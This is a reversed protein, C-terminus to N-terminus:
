IHILNGEKVRAHPSSQAVKKQKEISKDALQVVADEIDSGSRWVELVCGQPIRSRASELRRRWAEVKKNPSTVLSPQEMTKEAPSTFLSKTSSYASHARRYMVPRPTKPQALGHTTSTKDVTEGAPTVTVESAPGAGVENISKAKRPPLPPVYSSEVPETNAHVPKREGAVKDRPPLLPPIPPPPNELMKKEAARANAETPDFGIDGPDLMNNVDSASDVNINPVGGTSLASGLVQDVIGTSSMDSSAPNNKALALMAQPTTVDRVFIGVVQGQYENAMEVYLELDQEGSDGFLMFKRGPFDKLVGEVNARKREAAPEWIGQLMGSYQKLHVSGGPLGGVGMFDKLVPWIQWPSNSVYHLSVGMQELKGYLSRIGPVELGKLDRVFTNRFLERAGATVASHKITDDIDSIISVGNDPVIKCKSTQKLETNVQDFIRLKLLRSSQVRQIPVRVKGLFHGVDSTTLSQEHVLKDEEDFVKCTVARGVVPRSMFPALRFALNTHCTVLDLNPFHKAYKETSTRKPERTPETAVRRPANEAHPSQPESNVRKPISHRRAEEAAATGRDKAVDFMGTADPENPTAAGSSTVSESSLMEEPEDSLEILDLLEREDRPTSAGSNNTFYGQSLPSPGSGSATSSDTSKRKSDTPLPPLGVIQRAVSLIIRSKRSTRAPADYLWGHVNIEIEKCGEHSPGGNKIRAYSPFVVMTEKVPIGSDEDLKSNDSASSVNVGTQEPLKMVAEAVEAAAPIAASSIPRKSIYNLVKQKYRSASSSGMSPLPSGSSESVGPLAPSSPRTSGPTSSPRSSAFSRFSPVTPM